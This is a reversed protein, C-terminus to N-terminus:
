RTLSMPASRLNTLSNFVTVQVTQGESILQELRSDRSIVQTTFGGDERFDSPYDIANLPVGDIEVVTDNTIMASGNVRLQLSGKKHKLKISSIAPAVPTAMYVGLPKTKNKKGYAFFAVQGLDNLAFTDIVRITEGTPVKDGVAVVKVIAKTSALFIGSPASGNAVFAKFAVAGKDNIHPLPFPETPGRDFPSFM